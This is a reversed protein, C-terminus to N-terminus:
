KNLAHFASHQVTANKLCDPNDKPSKIARKKGKIIFSFRAEIAQDLAAERCFGKEMSGKDYVLWSHVNNGKWM